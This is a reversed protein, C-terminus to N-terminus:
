MRPDSIGLDLWPHRVGWEKVVEDFLKCEYGLIQDALWVVRLNPRISRDDRFGNQYTLDVDDIMCRVARKADEVTRGPQAQARIALALAASRSIGAACHVLISGEDTIKASWGLAGAIQYKEAEVYGDHSRSVDDFQLPHMEIGMSAFLPPAYDARGSPSPTGFISVVGSPVLGRDGVAVIAEGRGMVWIKM